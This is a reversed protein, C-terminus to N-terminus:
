YKRRARSKGGGTVSSSTTASSAACGAPATIAIVLMMGIASLMSPAGSRLVGIHDPFFARGDEPVQLVRTGM